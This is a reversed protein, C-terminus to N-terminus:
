LKNLANGVTAHYKEEMLKMLSDLYPFRIGKINALSARASELFSKRTEEVSYSKTPTKGLERLRQRIKDRAKTTKVFKLLERSLKQTKSTIVDVIDGNELKEKISVFKGNINAFDLVTSGFPLEIVKRKPTFAFVEDGFFEINFKNSADKSEVLQKLWNLKKDFDKEHSIKKYTFHAAIGEESNEHMEQTRIQIEFIKGENDVVSTHLSQYGNPKPM